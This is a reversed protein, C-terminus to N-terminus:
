WSRAILNLSLVCHLGLAAAGEVVAACAETKAQLVSPIHRLKGAAVVIFEGMDDTAVFVGPVQRPIRLSLLM